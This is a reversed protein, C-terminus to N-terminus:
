GVGLVLFFFISSVTISLVYSTVFHYVGSDKCPGDTCSDRDVTWEVGPSAVIGV